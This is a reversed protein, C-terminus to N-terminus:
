RKMLAPSAISATYTRQSTFTALDGRQCDDALTIGERFAVKELQHPADCQKAVGNYTDVAYCPQM